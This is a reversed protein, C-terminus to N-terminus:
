KVANGIEEVTGLVAKAAKLGGASKIFELAAPIGSMGNGAEHGRVHARRAMVKGRRKMRRKRKANGKITAVYTSKVKLGQLKLVESIEKNSKDPHAALADRIMQSKNVAAKAVNTRRNTQTSGAWM